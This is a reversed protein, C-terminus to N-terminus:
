KDVHLLVDVHCHPRLQVGLEGVVEAMAVEGAVESIQVEYERGVASEIPIMRQVSGDFNPLVEGTNIVTKRAVIFPIGNHHRPLVIEDLGM